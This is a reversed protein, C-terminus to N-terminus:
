TRVGEKGVRRAESRALISAHDLSETSGHPVQTYLGPMAHSGYVIALAFGGVVDCYFCRQHLCAPKQAAFAQKSLQVRGHALLKICLSEKLRLARFHLLAMRAM